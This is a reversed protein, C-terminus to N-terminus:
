VPQGSVDFRRQRFGKPHYRVNEYLLRGEEDTYPYIAHVKGKSKNVGSWGVGNFHTENMSEGLSSVSPMTIERDFLDKWTLGLQGVITETSCGAFCKVLIRGDGESLSLSQRKDDHAPCKAAYGQWGKRVGSLRPLLERLQM